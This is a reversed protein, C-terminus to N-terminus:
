PPKVEPINFQRQVSDLFIVANARSVEMEPAIRKQPGSPM